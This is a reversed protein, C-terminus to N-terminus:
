TATAATDAIWDTLSGLAAEEDCGAALVNKRAGQVSMELEEAVARVTGKRFYADAAARQADTRRNIVFSLTDLCETLRQATGDEGVVSIPRTGRRTKAEDIAARANWFAPGRGERTDPPLPTEIEGLGLGIWWEDSTLAQRVIAGLCGKGLVAQM